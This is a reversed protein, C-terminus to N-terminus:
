CKQSSNKKNTLIWTKAVYDTDYSVVAQCQAAELLTLEIPWFVVEALSATVVDGGLYFLARMRSLNDTGSQFEFVDQKHGDKNTDSFKPAGIRTIIEDRKSGIGLGSLNAPEPQSLVKYVSCGNTMCLAICVLFIKKM